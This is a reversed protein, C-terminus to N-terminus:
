KRRIAFSAAILFAIVAAVTVVINRTMVSPSRPIGSSPAQVQRLKDNTQANAIDGAGTLPPLAKDNIVRGGELAGQWDFSLLLDVGPNMAKVQCSCAGCLYQAMDTLNDANIAEGVLPELIRGQGFVVFVMPVAASANLGTSMNTLTSIFVREGANTRSLREVAFSRKLPISSELIDSPDIDSSESLNTADNSTIMGEPLKIDAKIMEIANTLVGYAKDDEAKNGSELMLWAAIEGDIIHGALKTRMESRALAAMNDATIEGSWAPGEIGSSAPYFLCLSPKNGKYTKRFVSLRSDDAPISNASYVTLNLLGEKRNTESELLRVLDMQKPPLVGDFVIAASYNEAQWRELAYRFVPVNCAQTECALFLLLCGAIILVPLREHIYTMFRNSHTM